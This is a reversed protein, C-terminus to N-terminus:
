SVIKLRISEREICRKKSCTCPRITEIQSEEKESLCLGESLFREITKLNRSVIYRDLQAKSNFYPLVMLM